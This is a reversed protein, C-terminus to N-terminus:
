SVCMLNVKQQNKIKYTIYMTLLWHITVRSMNNMNHRTSGNGPSQVAATALCRGAILLLPITNKASDALCYNILLLLVANETRDM